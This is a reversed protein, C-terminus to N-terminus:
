TGAVPETTGIWEATEFDDDDFRGAVLLAVTEEFAPAAGGHFFTIHLGSYRADIEVFGVGTSGRRKGRPTWEARAGRVDFLGKM